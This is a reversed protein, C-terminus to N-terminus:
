GQQDCVQAAAGTFIESIAIGDQRKKKQSAERSKTQFFGGLFNFHFFYFLIHTATRKKTGSEKKKDKTREAQQQGTQFFICFLSLFFVFFCSFVKKQFKTPIGGFFLSLSCSHRFIVVLSGSFFLFFLLLLVLTLPLTSVSVAVFSDLQYILIHFIKSLTISSNDLEVPLDQRIIKSRQTTVIELHIEVLDCFLDLSRKDRALGNAKFLNRVQSGFDRSMVGGDVPIVLLYAAPYSNVPEVLVRGFCEAFTNFNKIFVTPICAFEQGRGFCTQLLLRRLSFFFMVIRQDGFLQIIDQKRSRITLSHSCPYIGNDSFG